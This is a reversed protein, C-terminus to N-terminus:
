RRIARFALFMPIERRARNEEAARPGPQSTRSSPWQELADVMFGTGALAKIYSQTPRHFTYTTSAQAGGAVEGPNMVIESQGRRSIDMPVDTNGRARSAPQPARKQRRVRAVVCGIRPSIAFTRREIPWVSQSSLTGVSTPRLRGLSIAIWEKRQSVAM